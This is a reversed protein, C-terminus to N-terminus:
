NEVPWFASISALKDLLGRKEAEFAIHESILTGKLGIVEKNDIFDEIMFKGVLSNSLEQTQKLTLSKPKEKTKPKPLRLRSLFVNVSSIVLDSFNIILLLLAAIFIIVGISESPVNNIQSGISDFM